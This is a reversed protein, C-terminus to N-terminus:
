VVDAAIHKRNTGRHLASRQVDGYLNIGKVDDSEWLNTFKEILHLRARELTDKYRGSYREHHSSVM